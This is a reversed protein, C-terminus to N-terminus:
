RKVAVSLEPCDASSCALFDTASLQKKQKLYQVPGRSTLHSGDIQFAPGPIDGMMVNTVIQSAYECPGNVGGNSHFKDYVCDRVLRIGGVDATSALVGVIFQLVHM